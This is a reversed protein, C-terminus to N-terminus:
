KVTLNDRATVNANHAIDWAQGTTGLGITNNALLNDQGKGIIRVASKMVRQRRTDVVTCGTMNLQSVLSADLGYPVGDTLQCGTLTVRECNALEFLSAGSKQGEDTEDRFQCGNFTIDSSNTVRVGVGYQGTHRRFNCTGVNVQGCNELLVNRNGCSYITNGSLVVGYCGTLYVNNEQSGIVNGTITWLGPRRGASTVYGREDTVNDVIRINAGGPSETAQITNSAVTIENVSAGDATVDIYIEATPEPDTKHVRHNNYEIDNGTIQLNRVESKDLRVGGLRNYSIHNGTINIQHLNCADIYVGVGTNYYIQNNAIIVNRNRKHLHVGHRCQRIAVNEIIAQMTGELRVGDASGNGGEIEINSVGPMRQRSWVNPKFGLPDATAAHTGIFHFAPGEGAMVVKATGREGEVSTRGAKDLEITIPRTIRYDGRPFYLLGDGQALTHEVAQTDDTTGDGKAGFHRVNAM